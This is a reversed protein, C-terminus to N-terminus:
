KVLVRLINIVWIISLKAFLQSFDLKRVRQLIKPLTLFAGELNENGQNDSIKKKRRLFGPVLRRLDIEDKKEEAKEQMKSMTEFQQLLLSQQKLMIEQMAYLDKNSNQENKQEEM